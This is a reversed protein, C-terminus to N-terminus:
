KKRLFSFYRYWKNLYAGILRTLALDYLLFFLVGLPVLWLLLVSPQMLPMFFRLLLFASLSLGALFLLVKCVVCWVRPLRSELRAKIIPYYGAFCLYCLPATKTPVLLMALLATVAYILWPYKGGMEIVAFVVLLSALVAMSLDLVELLSGLALLIVGLACLVASVALYRAASRKKEMSM